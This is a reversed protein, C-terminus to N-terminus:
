DSAKAYVILICVVIAMVDLVISKFHSWFSFAHFLQM